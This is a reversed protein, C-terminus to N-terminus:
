FYFILRFVLSVDATNDEEESYNWLILLADQMMTTYITQKIILIGGIFQNQKLNSKNEKKFSVPSHFLRVFLTFSCVFMENMSVPNQETRRM